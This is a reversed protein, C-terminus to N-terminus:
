IVLQFLKLLFQGLFPCKMATAVFCIAASSHREKSFVLYWGGYKSTQARGEILLQMGSLIYWFVSGWFSRLVSKEFIIHKILVNNPDDFFFYCANQQTLSVDWVKQQHM